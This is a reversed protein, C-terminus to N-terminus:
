SVFFFNDKHQQTLWQQMTTVYRHEDVLRDTHSRGISFDGGGPARPLSATQTCRVRDGPRYRFQELRGPYIRVPFEFTSVGLVERVRYALDVFHLFTDALHGVLLDDRGPYVM